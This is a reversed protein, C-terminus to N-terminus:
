SEVPRNKPPQRRDWKKMDSQAATVKVHQKGADLTRADHEATQAKSDIKAGQKTRLNECFQDREGM